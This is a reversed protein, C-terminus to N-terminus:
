IIMSGHYLVASDASDASDASAPAEAILDVASEIHWIMFSRLELDRM